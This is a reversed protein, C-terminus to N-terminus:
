GIAIHQLPRLLMQAILPIDPPREASRSLTQSGIKSGTLHAPLMEYSLARQLLDAATFGVAAVVADPVQQYSKYRVEVLPVSAVIAGAGVDAPGLAALELYNEQNNVVVDEVRYTVLGQGPAYRVGFSVLEMVPPQNVSVRRTEPRWRHQEFLADPNFTRGGLWAEVARSALALTAKLEPVEVGTVDAGFSRARATFDAPPLYILGLLNDSPLPM